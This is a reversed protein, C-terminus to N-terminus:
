LKLRQVLQLMDESIRNMSEASAAIEETFALQDAASGSIRQALDNSRVAMHDIELLSANLEQSSASIQESAASTQQVHHM